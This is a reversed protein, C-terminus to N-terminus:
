KDDCELSEDDGDAEQEKIDKFDKEVAHYTFAVCYLHSLAVNGSRLRDNIFEVAFLLSAGKADVGISSLITVVAVVSASPINPLASVYAFSLIVVIVIKGADLEISQQQAVFICSAAIFIASADSKMTAALPLVFRSIPKPIGYQDSAFIAKPLAVIASTTAFAIFYTPLCYKLIRFPNACLILLSLALFILHTIIGVFNLLVFFGLSIFTQGIDQVEAISSMVMFMVGLPTILLFKQMLLMVVEGLSGFFQKFPEGKEQAANAAIGFVVSCFLVGILNTGDTKVAPYTTEGTATILPNKFDSAAQSLAVGVINDPFINLM